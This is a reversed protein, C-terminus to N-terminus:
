ISIEEILEPRNPVALPGSRALRRDTEAPWSEKGLLYIVDRDCDHRVRGVSASVHTQAAAAASGHLRSCFFYLGPLEM